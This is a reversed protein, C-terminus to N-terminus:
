RGKKSRKPGRIATHKPPAEISRAVPTPDAVARRNGGIQVAVGGDIWAHALTEDFVEEERGPDRGACKKTFRVKVSM